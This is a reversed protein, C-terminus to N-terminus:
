DDYCAGQPLFQSLLCCRLSLPQLLSSFAQSQEHILLTLDLFDRTKSSLKVLQLSCVLFFDIEQM